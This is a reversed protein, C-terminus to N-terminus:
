ASTIPKLASGPAFTSSFRNLLPQQEDEQLTEWLNAKTGYLIENPDFSPSSVLALTEGTKPNIAAATGADEEFSDFISEQVNVDITLTINKGNEVPTEALVIPEQNEKIVEIRTGKKGKLQEEYLSELGRKG